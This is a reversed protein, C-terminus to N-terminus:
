RIEQLFYAMEDATNFEYDAQCNTLINKPVFGFLASGTIMKANKGAQIDRPHDGLYICNEAKVKCAKAAMLLPAPHPKNKKATDGSIVAVPASPFQQHSILNNTLWAPKNTVIAWPIKKDALTQLGTELGKFIVTHKAINESYIQLFYEKRIELEQDNAQPFALKIMAKGGESIVARLQQYNVEPQKFKHCTKSLAYAFDHSTDLLTGDLDFLVCKINHTPIM